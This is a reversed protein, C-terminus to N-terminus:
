IYIVNRHFIVNFVTLIDIILTHQTHSLTQQLMKPINISDFINQNEDFLSICLYQDVPKLLIKWKENIDYM